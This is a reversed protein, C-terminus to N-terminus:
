SGRLAGIIGCKPYFRACSDGRDQRSATLQLMGNLPRESGVLSVAGDATDAAIVGTRWFSLGMPPNSGELGRQM